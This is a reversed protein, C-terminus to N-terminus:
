ESRRKLRRLLNILVRPTKRRGRRAMELAQCEWVVAVTMGTARLADEKKSDRVQNARIKDLWFSRNRKPVTARACGEHGHWFCGHVFVAWGKSM